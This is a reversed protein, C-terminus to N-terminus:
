LQVIRRVTHCHGDSGLRKARGLHRGLPPREGLRGFSGRFGLEESVWREIAGFARQLRAEGVFRVSGFLSGVRQLSCVACLGMVIGLSTQRRAM